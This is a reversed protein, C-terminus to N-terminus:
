GSTDPHTRHRQEFGGFMTEVVLLEGRDGGGAPRHAHQRARARALGAGDGAADPVQDAGAVDRRPLDQGDRERRPSRPLHAGAQARQADRSHLRAREVGGRQALQPVEPRAHHAAVLPLQELALQADDPLRRRTELRAGVGGRQAVEGTLDLPGLGAQDGSRVIGGRRAAAV